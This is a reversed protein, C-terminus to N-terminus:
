LWRVTMSLLVNFKLHFIEACGRAKALHSQNASVMLGTMREFADQRFSMKM